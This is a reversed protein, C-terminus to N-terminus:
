PSTFSCLGPASLAGLKACRGTSALDESVSTEEPHLSSPADRRTTKAATKVTSTAIPVNSM